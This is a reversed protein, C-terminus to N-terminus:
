AILNDETISDSPVCVTHLLNGKDDRYDILAVRSLSQGNGVGNLWNTTVIDLEGRCVGAIVDDDTATGLSFAGTDPDCLIYVGDGEAPM